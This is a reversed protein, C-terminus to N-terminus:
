ILYLVRGSSFGRNLKKGREEGRRGECVFFFDVLTERVPTLSLHAFIVVGSRGSNGTQGPQGKTM